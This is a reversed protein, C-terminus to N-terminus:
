RVEFRSFHGFVRERERERWCTAARAAAPPVAM